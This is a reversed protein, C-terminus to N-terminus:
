RGAPASLRAWKECTTGRDQGAEPHLREEWVLIGEGAPGRQVRLRRVLRAELHPNHGCVIRGEWPARRFTGFEARYPASSKDKAYAVREALSYESNAYLLEVIDAVRKASLRWPLIAAIPDTVQAHPGAWEWTVLWACIGNQRAGTKRRRVEVEAAQTRRGLAKAHLLLERPRDGRVWESSGKQGSSTKHSLTVGGRMGAM